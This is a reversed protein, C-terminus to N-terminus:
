FYFLIELLKLCNPSKEATNIEQLCETKPMIAYDITNTHDPRVLTDSSNSVHLHILADRHIIGARNGTFGSSKWPVFVRAEMKGINCSRRTDTIPVPLIETEDIEVPLQQDGM